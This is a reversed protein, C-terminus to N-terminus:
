CAPLYIYFKSGKGVESEVSTRGNHIQVIHKVIALGLGTGGLERSRAKDVRYFREFIRPLHEAPIGSGWDQIKIEVEKAKRTAMVNIRGGAGSYKIANDVLNVVAQELLESTGKVCLTDDCELSLIIDKEEAKNQCLFLSNSLVDKIHLKSFTIEENETEQEVRSLSLLDEIIANLRDSHKLIIDLFRNVNDPDNVAGDRLTEVFGKISTISNLSM